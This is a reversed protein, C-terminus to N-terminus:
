HICAQTRTGRNHRWVDTGCNTNEDRLDPESEAVGNYKARDHTVRLNTSGADILIGLTGNGIAVNRRVSGADAFIALAPDFAGLANRTVKNSIVTVNTGSVNIGYGHNGDAVVHEVVDNGSSWLRLGVGANDIFKSDTVTGNTSTLSFYAGADPGNQEFLSHTVRTGTSGQDYLGQGGSFSPDVNGVVSMHSITADRASVVNIGVDFAAITGKEVLVHHAGFIIVGDGVGSGGAGRISFGNLNV